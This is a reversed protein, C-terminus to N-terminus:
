DGQNKVTMTKFFGEITSFVSALYAEDQTGPTGPQSFVVSDTKPIVVTVVQARAPDQLGLRSSAEQRIADLNTNQALSERIQSSEQDMQEIERAIAVNEFNDELIMAQRYVILAFLGSVSLVLIILMSLLRLRRRALQRHIARARLREIQRADPTASVPIRLPKFDHKHVQLRTYNRGTTGFRKRKLALNGMSDPM